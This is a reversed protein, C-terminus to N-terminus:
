LDMSVFLFDEEELTILAESFLNEYQVFDEIEQPANESSPPLNIFDTELEFTLDDAEILFNFDTENMEASSLNISLSPSATVGSFDLDL